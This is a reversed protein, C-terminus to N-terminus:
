ALSWKLDDFGKLLVLLKGRGHHQQSKALQKGAGAPKRVVPRQKAEEAKEIRKNSEARSMNATIKAVHHRQRAIAGLQAILADDRDIDVEKDEDGTLMAKILAESKQLDSATRGAAIIEGKENGMIIVRTSQALGLAKHLSDGSDILHSSGNVDQYLFM